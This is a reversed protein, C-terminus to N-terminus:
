CKLIAREPKTLPSMKMKEVLEISRYGQNSRPCGLLGFHETLPPEEEAVVRHRIKNSFGRENHLSFAKLSLTNPGLVPFLPTDVKTGAESSWAVGLPTVFPSILPFCWGKGLATGLEYNSCKGRISM